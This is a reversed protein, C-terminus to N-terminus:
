EAPWAAASAPCPIVRARIPISDAGDNMYDTVVVGIGALTSDDQRRLELNADVYGDSWVHARIVYPGVPAWGLQANRLRRVPPYHVRIQYGSQPQWHPHHYAWSMRDELVFVLGEVPRDALRFSDLLAGGRTFTTESSVAYCGLWSRVNITDAKVQQGALPGALATLAILARLARKM